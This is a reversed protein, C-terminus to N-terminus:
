SSAGKVVVFNITLTNDLAASAHLNTITINFSGAGVASCFAMPTGASSTSGINVIVCDTAAVKTNTVTFTAEAAAALTSSVTTIQGSNTSLTVGTTISSAQTVTGGDSLTLTGPLSLGTSNLASGSEDLYLNGGNLHIHGDQDVYTRNPHHGAETTPM